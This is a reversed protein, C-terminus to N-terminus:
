GLARALAEGGDELVPEGHTLLLLELPRDLLAQLKERDAWWVRVHAGPNAALADGFAVAGYEPLRYAVEHIEDFVLRAEIGAPLADDLEFSDTVRTGKSAESLAPAYVWTRSGEYRDLIQQASRTHWKCTILVHPPGHHEVDRDLARWFEDEEAAPVLPDILALTREDASIYAYSGVEQEWGNEGASDPTWEPHPATWYWLRPRLERVDM